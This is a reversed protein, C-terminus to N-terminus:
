AAGGLTKVLRDVQVARAADVLGLVDLVEAAETPTKARGIVTRVAAAEVRHDLRRDPGYEIMGALHNNDSV